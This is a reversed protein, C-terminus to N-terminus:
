ILKRNMHQLLYSKIPATYFPLGARKMHKNTIQEQNWSNKVIDKFEDFSSYSLGAIVNNTLGFLWHDNTYDSQAFCWCNPPMCLYNNDAHKIIDQFNEFEVLLDNRSRLIYDYQAESQLVENCLIKFARFCSYISTRNQKYQMNHRLFQTYPANLSDLEEATYQDEFIVKRM